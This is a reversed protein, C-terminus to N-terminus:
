LGLFVWCCCSCSIGSYLLSAEDDSERHHLDSTHTFMQWICAFAAANGCISSSHRMNQCQYKVDGLSNKDGSQIPLYATSSRGYWSELWINLIGWYGQVEIMHRYLTCSQLWYTLWKANESVPVLYMRSQSQLWLSIAFICYEMHWLLVWSMNWHNEPEGSHSQINSKENEQYQLNYMTESKRHVLSICNIFLGIGNASNFRMIRSLGIIMLHPMGPVQLLLIDTSKM